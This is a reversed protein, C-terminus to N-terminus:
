FQLQWRVELTIDTTKTITGFNNYAVVTPRLPNIYAPPTTYAYFDTAPRAIVAQNYLMLGAESIPVSPHAGSLNMMQDTITSTYEVTSYGSGTVYFLQPPAVVPVAWDGSGGTGSTGTALVPRELYKILPDGKDYNNLGPYDTALDPYMTDVGTLQKKGGIGFSMYGIFTDMMHGAFGSSPSVVRPLFERGLNVWINHSEHCDKLVIKGRDRTTIKFNSEVHIGESFHMTTRATCYIACRLVIAVV